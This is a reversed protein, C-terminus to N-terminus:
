PRSRSAAAESRLAAPRGLGGPLPRLAILGAVVFPAFTVVHLVVAYALARADGIGYPHLAVLVAAEFVGVSAPAAPLVLAFTTAAAILIAADYGLEVHVARLVFWCTAGVALWTALTLAAAVAGAGLSRFARVGSAIRDAVGAGRGPALLGALAALPRSGFLRLVVIALLLGALAAALVVAATTRWTIDPAFPLTAFVLLLLVVTDLLREAVVTAGAEARSTRADRHLVLVRAVDGGRLPVVSNFLEGALLARTAARASPRTAPEFLYRWRVMRLAVSVALAGLAPGFWAASSDRVTRRFLEVNVDRAAVYVLVTSLAVGAILVLSPGARDSRARLKRIV